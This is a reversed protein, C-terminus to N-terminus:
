MTWTRLIEKTPQLPISFSPCGSDEPFSVRILGKHPAAADFEIHPTILVM